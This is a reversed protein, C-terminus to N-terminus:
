HNETDSGAADKKFMGRLGIEELVETILGDPSKDSNVTINESFLESAMQGYISSNPPEITIHLIRAPIARILSREVDIITDQDIKEAYPVATQISLQDCIVKKGRELSENLTKDIHEAKDAAVLLFSSLYSEIGNLSDRAEGVKTNNPKMDALVIDGGLERYFDFVRNCLTTKYTNPPGDIVVVEKM